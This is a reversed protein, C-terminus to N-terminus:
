RITINIGAAAFEGLLKESEDTLGIRDGHSTEVTCILNDATLGDFALGDGDHHSISKLVLRAANRQRAPVSASNVEAALTVGAKSFARVVEGGNRVLTPNDAQCLNKSSISITDMKGGWLALATIVAAVGAVVGAGELAKKKTIEQGYLEM